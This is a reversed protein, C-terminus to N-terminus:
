GGAEDIVRRSIEIAAKEMGTASTTKLTTITQVAAEDIREIEAAIEADTAELAAAAQAAADAAAKQGAAEAAQKAKSIIKACDENAKKILLAAQFEYEQVQKLKEKFM